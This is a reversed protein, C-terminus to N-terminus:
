TLKGEVTPIKGETSPLNVSSLKSETSLLIGRAPLLNDSALNGESLKGGTSPIKGGTSPLNVSPLKGEAPLLIGRVSPLYVDKNM